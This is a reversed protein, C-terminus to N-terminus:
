RKEFLYHSVIWENGGKFGFLEACALYFLRWNVYWEREKGKGYAERLVPELQGSKWSDDLLQLWGNSTREYHTGSVRWHKEVSFDKAFYLLLDDSPMTGGTFFTQAMWGDEFHYAFDKHAFIHVFLKGSDKKLFTKVKQILDNYNKMHEFMEVTMVLDNDQVVDLAGKDDAVNCTIVTINNVNLGRKAATNMIYEKQSASNSISTIKANPYRKALHLTLSGWGCGLDVIKMGDKVGARECYLDLMHIESEPFTTNPTPWLGSSYKKAPGLCLDYFKAPVEYHQENAAKTEIAIPMSHLEQIIDQKAQLEQEVGEMQLSNLRDQLQIRIGYRIFWDPVLGYMVLPVGVSEALQSAIRLVQEALKRYVSTSRLGKWLAAALVLQHPRIERYSTPLVLLSRSWDQLISM